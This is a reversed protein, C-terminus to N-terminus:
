RGVEEHSERARERNRDETREAGSDSLSRGDDQELRGSLLLDRVPHEAPYHPEDAEDMAARM